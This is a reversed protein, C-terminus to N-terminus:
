FEITASLLITRPAGMALFGRSVSSWYRKDAVNMLNGRFTVAKGAIPTVYRVGADMTGWGAISQTNGVDAQSGSFASVRGTLTLGRLQSFDYEGNLVVNVKPVGIADKGDNVGNLTHTQEADILTVGGLLRVGKLPQGFVQLELGRNRQEGDAVFMGGANTFTSPQAIQFVAATLGLGGGNYKLGAEYQRTVSPSLIEGQNVTGGPATAGQALGESYNAYLSYQNLKYVAALTPTAKTADHTGTQVGNAFVGSHLKQNRVGVTVLLQDGMLGITNVVGLSSLQVDGNQLLAATSPAPKPLAPSQYINGTYFGTAHATLGYGTRDFDSYSLAYNNSVGGLVLRGRLGAEFTDVDYSGKFEGVRATFDGANNILRRIQSAAYFYREDGESRAYSAYATAASSLKYEVRGMSYRSHTDIFEWDNTYNHDNKPVAPLAFGQAYTLNATQGHTVRNQRALDFSATLDGGRYDLAVAGNRMRDQQNDIPTDGGRALLNLRVGWAQDAGFRRGVDLHGGFQQDSVYSGTFRTLPTDAARKSALNINGGVVGFPTMGNLMSAPGKLVDIREYFEPTIRRGETMGYLGNVGVQSVFLPFGRISYTETDGYEAQPSRVSPDVAIIDAVRRAQQDAAFEETFSQTSFPTDYLDVDGLIGVRSGRTVQGGAFAAPRDGPVYVTTSVVSVEPLVTPAAAVTPLPRLVYVGPGQAVAELGTDGLLRSLADAVRMNGQVGKTRLGKLLEPSGALSIGSQAAFATLAGGLPGPNVTFVRITQAPTDAAGAASPMAGAALAGMMACTLAHRALRRQPAFTSHILGTLQRPAPTATHRPM